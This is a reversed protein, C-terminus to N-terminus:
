TRHWDLRPIVHTARGAASSLLPGVRTPTAFTIQAQKARGHTGKISMASEAQPEQVLTKGLRRQSVCLTTLPELRAGVSFPQDSETVEKQVV